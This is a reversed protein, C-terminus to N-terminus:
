WLASAGDAARAPRAASPTRCGCARRCRPRAAAAGAPRPPPSRRRRRASSRSSGAASRAGHRPARPPTSATSTVPPVPMAGRSRVGSATPASKSRRRSPKPSSKRMSENWSIPGAAISDRASAPTTPARQHKQQRARRRGHPERHLLEDHGLKGVGDALQAAPARARVCRPCSVCRMARRDPERRGREDIRLRPTM